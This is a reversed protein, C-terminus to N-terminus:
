WPEPAGFSARSEPFRKKIALCAETWRCKHERMYVNALQRYDVDVADADGAQSVAQNGRKKPPAAASEEAKKGAAEAKAEAEAKDKALEENKEQQVAFYAKMAAPLTACKELQGLKFDSSAGPLNENLEALTAPQEVAKTTTGEAM